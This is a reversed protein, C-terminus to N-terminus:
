ARRAATLAAPPAGVSRLTAIAPSAQLFHLAKANGSKYDAVPKPNDAILKQIMAELEGTDSIQKLGKEKRLRSINCGLAQAFESFDWNLRDNKM